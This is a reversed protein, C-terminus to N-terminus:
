CKQGRRNGHCPSFGTGSWAHHRPSLPSTAVVPVSVPSTAPDAAGGIKARCQRAMAWSAATGPLYRGSSGGERQKGAWRRGQEGPRRAARRAQWRAAAGARRAAQGGAKGPRRVAAHQGGRRMGGAWRAARWERRARVRRDRWSRRRM